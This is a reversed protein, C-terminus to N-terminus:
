HERCAERNSLFVFDGVPKKPLLSHVPGDGSPSELNSKIINFFNRDM